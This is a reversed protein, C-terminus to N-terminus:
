APFTTQKFQASMFCELKKLIQTVNNQSVIKVKIFQEFLKLSVNSYINLTLLTNITNILKNTHLILSTVMIWVHMMNRRAWNTENFSSIIKENLAM